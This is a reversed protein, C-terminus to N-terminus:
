SISSILEIKYGDPDEIFAIDRIGGFKMPGPQRTVKGGFQMSKACAADLNNVEIAIHGFANGLEYTDIGWNYTLEILTDKAESGYGVFALTFKGNPYDKRKIIQMDFVQTYFALSNELNGVRLMTHLIRM